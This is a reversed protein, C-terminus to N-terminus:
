LHRTDNVSLLEYKEKEKTFTTISCESIGIFEGGSFPKKQIPLIEEPFLNRLLDGIAGGHTILIINCYDNNQAIEEILSQMRKGCESSSDGRVPKYNRDIQTKAWEDMFAEFKEGDEVGWEIREILRKDYKIDLHLEKAIIEATQKTRRTPSAYLAAFKKNKLFIATKEAQKIGTEDLLPDGIISRKEGHRVLYYTIM